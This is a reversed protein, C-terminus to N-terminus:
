GHAGLGDLKMQVIQRYTSKEDIKELATKYAASADAIKGQAALVDGKLDAFLGDFSNQHQAELLKMAEAYSKDDLLIGALRLRAMDRAGDEKAHEIVWQLQAKASKADGLEYNIGAVILAARTAYPTAPYKEILQGAADRVRTKDKARVGNQVAEYVQAAQQQQSKQYYRWGQMGGLIAVFVAVGLLVTSGNQKWWAKLEDIKEQEELDFSM